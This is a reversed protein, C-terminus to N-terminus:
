HYGLPTVEGGFFPFVSDGIGGSSGILALLLFLLTAPARVALALPYRVFSIPACVLLRPDFFDFLDLYEKEKRIVAVAANLDPSPSPSMSPPLVAQEFASSIDAFIRQWGNPPSILDVLTTKFTQKIRDNTVNILQDGLILKVGQYQM